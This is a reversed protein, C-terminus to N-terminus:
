SRFPPLNTYAFDRTRVLAYSSHEAAFMVQGPYSNSEHSYSSRAPPVPQSLDQPPPVLIYSAQPDARLVWGTRPVGVSHGFASRALRM